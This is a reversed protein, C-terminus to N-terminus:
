ATATIMGAAVVPGLYLLPFPVHTYARARLVTAVAGLFYLGLGVAAAIGIAPVWLGLVLGVAGLAKATGLWVWWSRPVGYDALNDVVWAKNTFVSYASFGVWAATLLVVITTTTSM